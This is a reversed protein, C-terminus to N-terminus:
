FESVCSCITIIPNMFISSFRLYRSWLQRWKLLRQAVQRQMSKLLVLIGRARDIILLLDTTNAENEMMTWLSTRILSISRIFWYIMEYECGYVGKSQPMYLYDGRWACWLVYLMGVGGRAEVCVYRGEYFFFRWHSTSPKKAHLATPAKRYVRQM